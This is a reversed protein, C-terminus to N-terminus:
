TIWLVNFCQAESPHDSIHIAAAKGYSTVVTLGHGHVVLRISQRRVM